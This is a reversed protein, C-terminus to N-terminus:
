RSKMISKFQEISQLSERICPIEDLYGDEVIEYELENGYGIVDVFKYRKHILDYLANSYHWGKKGLETIFDQIDIDVIEENYITIYGRETWVESVNKVYKSSFTKECWIKVKM